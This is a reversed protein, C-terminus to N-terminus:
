EAIGYGTNNLAVVEVNGDKGVLFSVVVKYDGAPAGNDTPTENKFNRWCFMSFRKVM